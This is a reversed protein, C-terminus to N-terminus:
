HVNFMANSEYHPVDPNNARDAKPHTQTVHELIPQDDDFPKMRM